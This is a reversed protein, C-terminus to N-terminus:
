GKHNKADDEQEVSQAEDHKSWEVVIKRVSTAKFDVRVGIREVQGQLSDDGNAITHRVLIIVFTDLSDEQKYDL